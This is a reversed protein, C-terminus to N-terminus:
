WASILQNPILLRDLADNAKAIHSQGDKLSFAEHSPILATLELDRLRRLTRIVADLRCDWINQLLIYGGYFVADASFLTREGSRELLLSIHGDPRVPATTDLEPNKWVTIKLVDGIGIVYEEGAVEAAVEGAPEQGAAPRVAAFATAVVLAGAAPAALRLVALGLAALQRKLFHGPTPRRSVLM